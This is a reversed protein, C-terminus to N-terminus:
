RNDLNHCNLNQITPRPRWCKTNERFQLLLDKQRSGKGAQRQNWPLPLAPDHQEGPPSREESLQRQQQLFFAVM